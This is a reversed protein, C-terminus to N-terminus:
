TGVRLGRVQEKEKSSFHGEVFLAGTVYPFAGETRGVCSLWRQPLTDVGSLARTLILSADRFEGPLYGTYGSLVQWAVYDAKLRRSPVVVGSVPTTRKTRSQKVIPLKLLCDAIRSICICDYSKVM